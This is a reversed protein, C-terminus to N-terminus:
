LRRAAHQRLMHCELWGYGIVAKVIARASPRRRKMIHVVIESFANVNVAAPNHDAFVCFGSPHRMRFFLIRAPRRQARKKLLGATACPTLPEIEPM